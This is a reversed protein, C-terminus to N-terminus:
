NNDQLDQSGSDLPLLTAEPKTSNLPRTDARSLRTAVEEAKLHTYRFLMRVDRHGSILAVEPVTLGREFFRSIAEHRLDHFHFDIIRARKVLRKWALKLAEVTLPILRDDKQSKSLRDIVALANADLPVTRPHGNKTMPLFLTRKDRDIHEWRVSLLEGRRMGTHLALRVAPEIMPNLCGACAAFLDREEDPELRRTRAPPSKPKRVDITPNVALPVGWEKRAIEFVHRLVTLHRLLTGAGVKALRRDRWEAIAGTRITALLESALPDRRMLSLIYREVPYAKKKSAVETEYRRLLDGVTILDSHAAFLEGRDARAETRRAWVLADARSLFSKSVPKQGRRRVQVQYRQGRKRITAM